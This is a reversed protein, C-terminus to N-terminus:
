RTHLLLLDPKEVFKKWDNCFRAVTAGDLVRHDAGINITMISAPYVDGDETFQAIKQIRGIGIIAVEPSNILPSGFKGGIGGINSLTITSGSIDDPSLKNIKALKQLRSLEKTIELISLSQVNKINPVVLGNPTAMAIGINHSGKLIVEYSEENFRSNLMPHTTLAMSLSKILVPLFTHKIEPDSNENQFSKKLEVVADCKMEEVYYFHPIKAALTMSKVMSRQYGRLQLTKDEYGAGILSSVESHKQQACALAENILGKQMAYNTVDEKLIRGDKGTGPVDNIDLGYQKALNRVAPTSSVGDIKSKEPVSSIDSSGIFDSDLSTMKESADSTETPEPIEDVAIKLLTEGVKVISGPVHVIHSIKGKYRSTIEITAKDSQVECLPQFEEVQDGEQVFWKLLECEAIGEGTQALPVDIVGGTSLDLAAQTSFSCGRPIFSVNSKSFSCYPTTYNGFFHLESQIKKGSCVTSVPTVPAAVPAVSSQFWRCISQRVSNRLKGQNIKRCIM